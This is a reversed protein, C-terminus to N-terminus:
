FLTQHLRTCALLRRKCPVGFMYQPCLIPSARSVAYVNSCDFQM